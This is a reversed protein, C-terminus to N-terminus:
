NLCTKLLEKLANTNINFEACTERLNECCIYYKVIEQEHNNLHGILSFLDNEIPSDYDQVIDAYTDKSGDSLQNYLSISEYNLIRKDARSNKFKNTLINNVSLPIQKEFPQGNPVPGFNYLIKLFHMQIESILDEKELSNAYYASKRVATVVYPKITDWLKVFANGDIEWYKKPKGRNKGHLYTRGEQIGTHHIGQTAQIALQNVLVNRNM